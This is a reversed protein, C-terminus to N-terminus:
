VVQPHLQLAALLDDGCEILILDSLDLGDDLFHGDVDLLVQDHLDGDGDVDIILLFLQPQHLPLPGFQALRPLHANRHVLLAHLDFPRLEYGRPLAPAHPLELYVILDPAVTIGLLFIPFSRSLRGMPGKPLVVGTRPPDFFDDLHWDVDLLFNRFLDYDLLLDDLVDDLLSLAYVVGLVDGLLFQFPVAQRLLVPTFDGELLVVPEVLFQEITGLIALQQQLRMLDLPLILLLKAFSFPLSLHIAFQRADVAVDREVRGQLDFFFRWGVLDRGGVIVGVGLDAESLGELLRGM